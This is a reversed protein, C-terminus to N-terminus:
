QYTRGEVLEVLDADYNQLEPESAKLEDEFTAWGIQTCAFM